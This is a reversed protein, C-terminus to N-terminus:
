KEPSRQWNRPHLMVLVPLIEVRGAWMNVALLLKAWSPLTPSTVGVSQGVTGAASATEFLADVAPVGLTAIALASMVVLGAYCVVLAFTRRLEDETITVGGLKLPVKAERPLMLRLLAWSILSLAIGLRLLKLGGATSGVGGGILMLVVSLMKAGDPLDAPDTTTFGTTTAASAVHFVADRLAGADWGVFGLHVLTGAVLVAGLTRVQVDSALKQWQKRRLVLYLLPFSTAGVVMFVMTVAEVAASDYAGISAGFSSFGGTSVLALAHLLGDFAGAGAALLAAYGAITLGAYVAAVVRATAVVSGLLNEEGFESAYLRSAASGHGALVVLSLIIIGAGGVWQSFARFFLLSPPLGAPELLSLGTTTFGSMAEFFADVPGTVSLFAVAGAAAFVLYALATIVIAERLRLERPEGRRCLWGASWMVAAAVTFAASQFMDGAALAVVACPMLTVAFVMLVGGLQYGVAGLDLPVVFRGVSM